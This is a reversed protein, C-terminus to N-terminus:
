YGMKAKINAFLTPNKQFFSKIAKVDKETANGVLLDCGNLTFSANMNRQQSIVHFHPPNHEKGVPRLEIRLDRIQGVFAKTFFERVNGDQDIVARDLYKGLERELESILDDLTEEKM